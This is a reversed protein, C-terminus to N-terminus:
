YYLRKKQRKDTVIFEGRVGHTDGELNVGLDVNYKEMLDYLEELFSNIKNSAMDKDKISM